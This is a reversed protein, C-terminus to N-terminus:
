AELRYECGQRWPYTQSSAGFASYRERAVVNGIGNTLTSTSGLHDGQVYTLEDCTGPCGLQTVRTALLTGNAYYRKYQRNLTADYEFHKGILRADSATGAPREEKYVGSDNPGDLYLSGQYAWAHFRWSLGRPMEWRAEYRTGSQGEKWVSVRTGAADDVGLELVYWM